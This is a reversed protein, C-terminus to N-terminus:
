AAAGSRIESQAVLLALEKERELYEDDEMRRQHVTARSNIHTQLKSSM